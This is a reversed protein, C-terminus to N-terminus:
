KHHRLFWTLEREVLIKNDYIDRAEVQLKIAALQHRIDSLEASETQLDFQKSFLELYNGSSVVKNVTESIPVHQYRNPNLNICDKIDFYDHGVKTFTLRKIIAPGLGNNQVHIFVLGKDDTLDIQILPKVSKENHIRQLYAQYFTALLALVSLAFAM